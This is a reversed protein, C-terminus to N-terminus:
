KQEELKNYIGLIELKCDKNKIEEEIKELIDLRSKLIDIEMYFVYKGIMDRRPRSLITRLNLEYDKFTNLISCLIGFRDELPTVVMSVVLNMSNPIIHEKSLRVFRTENDISDAVNPITPYNLPDTHIPIIAGVELSSSKLFSEMSEINSQTILPKLQHGLIFQLCQGYTKHQVYVEKVQNLDDTKGIFQFGIPLKVEETIYYSKRIVTDLAEMVFGDLTNEFPILVDEDMSQAALSSLITKYYVIEYKEKLLTAAKSAYTGEPGLVALRKM